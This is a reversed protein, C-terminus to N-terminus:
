PPEIEWGSINDGDTDVRLKGKNEGAAVACYIKGDKAFLLPETGCDIIPETGIKEKVKPVLLEVLKQRPFAVGDVFVTNMALDKGNVGTIEVEFGYSKGDVAIQCVLKAGKKAEVNKPCTVTSNTIGATVMKTQIQGELQKSDVQKKCAVLSAGCAIVVGVLHANRM